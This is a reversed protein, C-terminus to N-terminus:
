FVAPYYTGPLALSHRTLDSSADTNIDWHKNLHMLSQVPTHEIDSHLGTDPTYNPSHRSFGVICYWRLSWWIICVCALLKVTELLLLSLKLVFLSHQLRSCITGLLCNLCNYYIIFRVKGLKLFSLQFLFTLCEIHDIGRSQFLSLRFSDSRSVIDVINDYLVFLLLWM